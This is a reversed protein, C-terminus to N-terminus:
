ELPIVQEHPFFSREAYFCHHLSYRLFNNVSSTYVDAYRGVDFFFETRCSSTRFVSGFDPNFMQQSLTIASPASLLCLAVCHSRASECEEM